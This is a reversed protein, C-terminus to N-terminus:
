PDVEKTKVKWLDVDFEFRRFSFDFCIMVTISLKISFDLQRYYTCFHYFFKKKKASNPRGRPIFAFSIHFEPNWLHQYNDKLFWKKVRFSCFSSYFLQTPQIM